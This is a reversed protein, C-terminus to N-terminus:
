FSDQSDRGKARSGEWLIGLCYLPQSSCPEPQVFALASTHSLFLCFPHFMRSSMGGHGGRQLGCVAHFVLDGTWLTCAWTKSGVVQLCSHQATALTASTLMLQLQPELAALPKGLSECHLEEAAALCRPISARTHIWSSLHDPPSSLFSGRGWGPSENRPPSM